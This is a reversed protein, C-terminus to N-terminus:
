RRAPAGPTAVAPADPRPIFEYVHYVSDWTPGKRPEVSSVPFSEFGRLLFRSQMEAMWARFAPTDQPFENFLVVRLPHTASVADLRLPARRAHRPSYIRQYCLYTDTADNAWHEPRFVVGLDGRVCALEARISKETWFWQAFARAREDSPTKYPHTLDYGVLWLGLAALALVAGRLGDRRLRPSALRALAAALGLGALLCIAPAVYQMTRTNMGYPYRRIAAAVLGMAFPMLALGLAARRRGRWLAVAGAVFLAFTLGSLGNAGGVPYAFAFGTNMRLFWAAFALPNRLPPFADDWEHYFYEQDQPSTKYFGQLALFTAVAGLGFLVYAIRVDWRGSRAVAPLLVLGIGAAVLVAPFSFGVALPAGAALAWLWGVKAPDRRWEIAAALMALTILLDSAYPKVEAAYRLPWASVAFIAVALLLPVGKLIRGAVHRFLLVSGLGCVFPILRLSMESFGFARVSGLMAFRFLLPSVQRYELPRLLDAFGRDLFNAALMTEDCWLPFNLLYRVVRITVGLAVFGLTARAVWPASWGDDGGGKGVVELPARGQGQTADM